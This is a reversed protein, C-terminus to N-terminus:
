LALQVAIPWHVIRDIFSNNTAARYTRLKKGFILLSHSKEAVVRTLADSESLLSLEGKLEAEETM